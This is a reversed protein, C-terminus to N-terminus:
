KFLYLKAAVTALTTKAAKTLKAYKQKHQALERRANDTQLKLQKVDMGAKSARKEADALNNKYAEFQQIDKELQEIEKGIKALESSKVEIGKQKKLVINKINEYQESLHKGLNSSLQNKAKILDQIQTATAKAMPESLKKQRAMQKEINEFEQLTEHIQNVHPDSKVFDSYEEYQGEKTLKDLNRGFIKGLVAKRYGENTRILNRLFSAEPISKAAHTDRLVDTTIRGKKQAQWHEPRAYFPAKNNAFYTDADSLKELISPSVANLVDRLKNTLLNYKESASDLNTRQVETLGSAEQWAKSSLKYAIQKATKYFSLLKETPITKLDKTKQLEPILAQEESNLVEVNDPFLKQLPAAEEGVANAVQRFKKYGTNTAPISEPEDELVNNYKASVQNSIKDYIKNHEEAALKNYDINPDFSQTANQIFQEKKQNLIESKSTEPLELQKLKTLDITIPDKEGFRIDKFPKDAKIDEQLQKQKEQLNQLQTKATAEKAGMSESTRRGLGVPIEEQTRALYKEAEIKSGKATKLDEELLGLGKALKRGYSLEKAGFRGVGPLAEAGASLVREGSIRPGPQKLYGAILPGAIGGVAAGVPGFRGGIKAGLLSEGFGEAAKTTYRGLGRAFQESTPTPIDAELPLSPQGSVFERLGGLSERLKRKVGYGFEEGFGSPAIDKERKGTIKPAGGLKEFPSASPKQQQLAKRVDLETYGEPVEYPQGDIIHTITKAM